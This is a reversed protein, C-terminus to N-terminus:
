LSCRAPPPRSASTCSARSPSCISPRNARCLAAKLWEAFDAPPRRLTALATAAGKQDDYAQAALRRSRHPRPVGSLLARHPRRLVSHPRRVAAGRRVRSVLRAHHLQLLSRLGPHRTRPLTPRRAVVLARSSPAPQARRRVPRYYGKPPAVARLPYAAFLPVLPLLGVSLLPLAGAASNSATVLWGTAAANALALATLEAQTM